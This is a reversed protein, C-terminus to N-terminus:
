QGPAKKDAQKDSQTDAAKDAKGKQGNRPAKGPTAAASVEVIKVGPKLKYQGDSVV